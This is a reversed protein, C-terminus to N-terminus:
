LLYKANNNLREQEHRLQYWGRFNGPTPDHAPTAVHELPSWHPPYATVLRSYLSLDAKWDRRGAHTLYSVRACRAASLQKLIENEDHRNLGLQQSELLDDETIYPLHWDGRSLRQPSSHEYAYRMARAAERIEPQALESDRQDFFGQWDTATIISTVYQFPELLRNIVSKHLGLEYLKDAAAVASDRAAYWQEECRVVDDHRLEYGGQMGKQEQPWELPIAPDDMVSERMKRYPIARSSATNRSFVRHTNMEALVFRHYKVELTTLRVGYPSVSDCIVKASPGSM